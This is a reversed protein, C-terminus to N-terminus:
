LAALEHPLPDGEPLWYEESSVIKLAARLVDRVQAKQEPHAAWYEQPVGKLSAVVDSDYFDGALPDGQLVHLTFPVLYQFEHFLRSGNYAATNIARILDIREFERFPRDFVSRYWAILPDDDEERERFPYPRGVSEDMARFSMSELRELELREM